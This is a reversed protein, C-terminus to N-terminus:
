GGTRALVSDAIESLITVQTIMASTAYRQQYVINAFELDQLVASVDSGFGTPGLQSLGALRDLDQLSMRLRVYGLLSYAETILFENLAETDRVRQTWEALVRRLEADRLLSMGENGALTELTGARLLVPNAVGLRGLVPAVAAFGADASPGMLGLLSDAAEIRLQYQEVHWNLRTKHVRFDEALGRLAADERGREQRDAWLADITFALLISVVIVAGEALLRSWPIQPRM